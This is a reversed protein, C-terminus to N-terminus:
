NDDPGFDMDEIPEHQRRAFLVVIYKDFDARRVVPRRHTRLPMWKLDGNRTAKQLEAQSLRSYAMAEHIDLCSPWDPLDRLALGSKASSQLPASAM